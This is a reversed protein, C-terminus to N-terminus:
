IDICLIGLEHMELRLWVMGMGRGIPDVRNVTKSCHKILFFGVARMFPKLM